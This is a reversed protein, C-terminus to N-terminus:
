LRNQRRDCRNVALVPLQRDVGGLRAHRQRDGDPRQRVVGRGPASLMCSIIQHGFGGISILVITIYPDRTIAVIALSIMLFAGTVSSAVVSNVRSCGFLRTYLRTLYGSAVSGLDAALFPLWAFMAIQKLDMGHEKALYLPM